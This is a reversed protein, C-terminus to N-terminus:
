TTMALYLMQCETLTLLHNHFCWKGIYKDNTGTNSSASASARGIFGQQTGNYTPTGAPVTAAGPTAFDVANNRYYTVNQGPAPVRVVYFNWGLQNDVGLGWSAQAGGMYYLTVASIGSTHISVEVVLPNDLTMLAGASTNQVGFRYAKSNEINNTKVWFSVSFPGQGGQKMLNPTLTPAPGFARSDGPQVVLCPSLDPLGTSNVTFFDYTPNISLDANNISEDITRTM